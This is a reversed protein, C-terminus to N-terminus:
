ARGFASSGVTVMVRIKSCSKSDQLMVAKMVVWFPQGTESLHPLQQELVQVIVAKEPAPGM